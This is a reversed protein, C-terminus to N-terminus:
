IKIKLEAGFYISPNRRTFTLSREYQYIPRYNLFNNAYFSLKMNKFLEKSLKFNCLLLPPMVEADFYNDGKTDVYDYHTERMEDTFPYITGDADYLYIPAEDYAMNQTKDYWVVQMTTTFILRLRTLHTIFTFNTNLREYETGEGSPYVGVQSYQGGTTKTPLYSYNETSNVRQTRMWAGNMTITTAIPKIKGFDFSYEVGYKQSKKNNSPTGFGVIYQAEETPLQTIDPKVGEAVDTDDYTIYDIFEYRYAMSYGDSLTEFYGTISGKVKNVKFDFGLERKFNKSPKLETNTVDFIHTSYYVFSSTPDETYHDLAVLDIYTLDPYLYLLPATKYNVGIGGHFNLFKVFSNKNDIVKYRLNFRPEAYIGVDGSFLGTPQFNNVRIGAQMDLTTSGIPLTLKNELFISLSQSAPIDKYSRPRSSARSVVPPNAIDYVRGEGYNGSLKYDIGFMTNNIIDNDLSLHKNGKVQGFINVPLGKIYLETLRTSPLYIGENEGKELSLSIRQIDTSVHKKEYDEQASVSSSLNYSLNSIFSRNLAWEGYINLRAGADSSRIIEEDVMADPDTREEALTNYISLKTNFSLPSSDKMFTNSYGLQATLRDYGTYKTRLDKYSQTYDVNFNTAGGHKLKVGKGVYFQKIQPDSKIKVELPTYGSKTKVIVAGSTLNGYEVSPIGKIVEVSEINDTSIQRVDIGSGATSVEEIASNTNVTSYTQLNADNSIPAGDVIIAIGAASNDDTGIERIALSQKTSLDPNDILSGPLLQMIDGLTTPQVHQLATTNIKSSTSMGQGKEATVIVEQMAFSESILKISINKSAYEKQSYTKQYKHKGLHQVELTFNEITVNSFTFAGQENTTTWQETELIRIVAYPIPTNTESAILKGKIVGTNNQGLVSVSIILFLYTLLQNKLRFPHNLICFYSFAM